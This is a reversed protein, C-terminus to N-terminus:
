LKGSFISFSFNLLLTVKEFITSVNVKMLVIVKLWDFTITKIFHMTYRNYGLQQMALETDNFM